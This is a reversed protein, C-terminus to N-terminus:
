NFTIVFKKIYEFYDEAEKSGKSIIADLHLKDGASFPTGTFTISCNLNGTLSITGSGSSPIWDAIKLEVKTHNVANTTLLTESKGVSSGLNECNWFDVRTIDNTAAANTDLIALKGLLNVTDAMINIEEPFTSNGLLDGTTSNPHTLRLLGYVQHVSQMTADDIGGYVQHTRQENSINMPPTVGVIVPYSFADLVDWKASFPARQKSDMIETDATAELLEQTTKGTTSSGGTETGSTETNWFASIQRNTNGFVGGINSNGKPEGLTFNDGETSDNAKGLLGGVESNGEVIAVAYSSAIFSAVDLFGVLGGVKNVGKVSGAAYSQWIGGSRRFSTYNNAYLDPTGTMRGALKGVENRGKVTGIVYSQTIKGEKMEGTLAGVKDRGIIHTNILHLNKLHSNFTRSFLGVQDQLPRNIYLGDIIYNKGDLSSRQFTASIPKFGKGDNWNRTVSADINATLVYNKDHRISEINQLQCVNSIELPNRSPNDFSILSCKGDAIASKQSAYGYSVQSSANPANGALDTYNTGLQVAGSADPPFTLLFRAESTVDGILEANTFGTLILDGATLDKVEESFIAQSSSVPESPKIM